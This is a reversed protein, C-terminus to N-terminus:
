PSEPRESRVIKGESELAKAVSVVKAQAAEVVSLKQPSASAIEERLTEQARLSVNRFIATTVEPSAKRLALALVENPVERLVLQLSRDDLQILSEFVFMQAEIRATLNPDRKALEALMRQRDEATMHNLMDAVGSVGGHKSPPKKTSM